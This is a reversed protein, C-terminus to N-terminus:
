AIGGGGCIGICMSCCAFDLPDPAVNALMIACCLCMSTCFSQKWYMAPTVLSQSQGYAISGSYYRTSRCLSAEATFGPMKM